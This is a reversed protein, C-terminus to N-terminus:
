RILIWEASAARCFMASVCTVWATDPNIYYIPLDGEEDEFTLLRGDGYLKPECDEIDFASFEADPNVRASEIFDLMDQEISEVTEYCARALEISQNKRIAILGADDKAAYLQSLKEFERVALAITQEDLTQTNSTMWAWPGFPLLAMFPFNFEIVGEGKTPEWSEGTSDTVLGKAHDYTVEYVGYEHDGKYERVKVGVRCHTYEWFGNELGAHERLTVQVSNRGSALWQNVPVDITTRLGDRDRAVPCDNVRIEHACDKVDIDMVYFPQQLVPLTEAPM